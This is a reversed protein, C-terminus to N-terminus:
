AVSRGMSYVDGMSYEHLCFFSNGDDPLFDQVKREVTEATDFLSYGFDGFEGEAWEVAEECTDFYEKYYMGDHCCDIMYREPFYKGTSDTNIYIGSGPEESQYVMRIADGYREGLIKKFVDMHPTWATETEM